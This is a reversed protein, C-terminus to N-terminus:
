QHTLIIQYMLGSIDMGKLTIIASTASNLCTQGSGNKALAFNLKNFNNINSFVANGNIGGKKLPNM